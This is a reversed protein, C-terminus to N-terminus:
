VSRRSTYQEQLMQIDHAFLYEAFELYDFEEVAPILGALQMGHQALGWMGTFLMLM